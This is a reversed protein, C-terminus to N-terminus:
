VSLWCKQSAVTQHAAPRGIKKKTRTHGWRKRRWPEESCWCSPKRHAATWCLYTSHFMRMTLVLFTATAASTDSSGGCLPKRGSLITMRSDTAMM